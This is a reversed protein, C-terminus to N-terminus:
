PEPCLRNAILAPLCTRVQAAAAAAARPIDSDADGAGRRCGRRPAARRAPAPAPARATAAATAAELFPLVCGGGRKGPASRDSRRVLRRQRRQRRRIRPLGRGRALRPEDNVVPRDLQQAAPGIRGARFGLPAHRRLIRRPPLQRPPLGAVRIRGRQRRRCTHSPPSRWGPSINPLLARRLRCYLCPPRWLAPQSHALCLQRRRKPLRGRRLVCARCSPPRPGRRTATFPRRCGGEPTCVRRIRSAQIVTNQHLQGPRVM